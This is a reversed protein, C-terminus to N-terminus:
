RITRRNESDNTTVEVLEVRGKMEKGAFGRGSFDFFMRNGEIRGIFKLQLREKAIRFELNNGSQKGQFTFQIDKHQNRNHWAFEGILSDGKSDTVKLMCSTKQNPTSPNFKVGEFRAGSRISTVAPLQQKLLDDLESLVEKSVDWERAFGYEKAVSKFEESVKNRAKEVGKAYKMKDVRLRLIDPAEGQEVFMKRAKEIADLSSLQKEIELGRDEEVNRKYNDIAAVMAKRVNDIEDLYAKRAVVLRERLADEGSVVHPWVFAVLLIVISTYSNLKSM